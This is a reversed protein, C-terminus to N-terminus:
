NFDLSSVPWSGRLFFSNQRHSSHGDEETDGAQKGGAGCLKFKGWVGIMYALEKKERERECICM